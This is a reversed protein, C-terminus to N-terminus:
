LSTVFIRNAVKQRWYWWLYSHNIHRCSHWYLLIPVITLQPRRGINATIDTELSICIAAPQQIFAMLSWSGSDNIYYWVNVQEDIYLTWLKSYYSGTRRRLVHLIIMARYRGYTPSVHVQEDIYETWLKSYYLGTGWRLVHLMIMARYNMLQPRRGINATIVTELSICIAANNTSCHIVSLTPQQIYAMLLTWSCTMSITPLVWLYSDYIQRWRRRPVLFWQHFPSNHTHGRRRGTLLLM